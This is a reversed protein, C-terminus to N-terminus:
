IHVQLGFNINFINFRFSAGSSFRNGSEVGDVTQRENRLNFGFVGLSLNFCTNQMMKVSVGPSFNLAAKMYTSHTHKPLDNYPRIFDTAGSGFALEVENFVSFRGRRSLGVYQTYVVAASYSEDKYSIDKLNFNMDDDIDVKFSDIGGKSQSYAFRVGVSMNHNIFYSVTPRIAFRHGSLDIDNLLSLLELNDSSFEAYSVTLGFGWIGKPIFLHNYMGRDFRGLNHRRLIMPITDGRFLVREAKLISDSLTIAHGLAGNEVRGRVLNYTGLSDSYVNAGPRAVYRVVERVEKKPPRNLIDRAWPDLMERQLGLMNVMAEYRASVSDPIWVFHGKQGVRRSNALALTTDIEAGTQSFSAVAAAMAFIIMTIRKGMVTM